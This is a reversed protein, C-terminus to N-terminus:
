RCDAVDEVPLPEGRLPEVHSETRRLDGLASLSLMRMAERCHRRRTREPSSARARAGEYAGRTGCGSRRERTCSAGHRRLDHERNAASTNKTWAPVKRRAPDAREAPLRDEDGMDHEVRRDNRQHDASAEDRHPLLRSSAENSRPAPGSEVNRWTVSGRSAGAMRAPPSSANVNENSSKM